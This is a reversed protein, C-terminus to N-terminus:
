AAALDQASLEAVLRKGQWVECQRANKRLSRVKAVAAADNTSNIWEAFAIDGAHDLCYYRYKSMYM